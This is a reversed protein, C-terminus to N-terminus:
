KTAYLGRKVSKHKIYAWIYLTSGDINYM